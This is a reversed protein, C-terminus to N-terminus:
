ITKKIIELLEDKSKLGIVKEIEQGNMFLILTPISMIGYNRAIDPFEDTNVKLVDIETIEELIEGQMRCPGCWDAYFDVLIHNQIYNDFDEQKELYKIM